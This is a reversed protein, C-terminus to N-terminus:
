IIQAPADLSPSSSHAVRTPTQLKEDFAKLMAIQTHLDTSKTQASELNKIFTERFLKDELAKSLLVDKGGINVTDPLVDDKQIAKALASQDMSKYRADAIVKDGVSQALEAAQRIGSKEPAYKEGVTHVVAARWAERLFSGGLGSPLINGVAELGVAVGEAAAAGYRGKVTKALIDSAGFALTAGVGVILGTSKLGQKALLEAGREAAKGVAANTAVTEAVIKGAGAVDDAAIQAGAQVALEAKGAHAGAKNIASTKPANGHESGAKHEPQTPAIDLKVPKEALSRVPDDPIKSIGDSTKDAASSSSQAEKIAKHRKNEAVIEKWEGNEIRQKGQKLGDKIETAHAEIRRAWDADPDNVSKVKIDNRTVTHGDQELNKVIGNKLSKISDPFADRIEKEKLLRGSNKSVPIDESNLKPERYFTGAFGDLNDKSPIIKGTSDYQPSKLQNPNFVFITNQKENFFFVAGGRDKNNSTNVMYKADPDNLLSRLRAKMTEPTIKESGFDNLHGTAGTDGTMHHYLSEAITDLLEPSLGSM